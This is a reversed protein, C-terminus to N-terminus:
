APIILQIFTRHSVLLHVSILLLNLTDCVSHAIDMAADMVAIDM